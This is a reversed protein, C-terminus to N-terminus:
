LLRTTRTRAGSGLPCGRIWGRRSASSSAGRRALGDPAGAGPWPPSPDEPCHESRCPYGAQPARGPDPHVGIEPEGPEPPRHAGHGRSGSRTERVWSSPRDVKAAGARPAMSFLTQPTVTFSAWRDRSLARSAAAIFARDRDRLEPRRVTPRLVQLQHRLVANQLELQRVTRGKGLRAILRVLLLYALASWLSPLRRAGRDLPSDLRPAV